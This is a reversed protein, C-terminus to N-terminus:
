GELLARLDMVKKAMAEDVKMLSEIKRVAHLITTHDRGGFRRGIEPLSRLTLTKALYIAIQRPRVVQATRRSSIMDDKSIGFDRAVVKQIDEIKIRRPPQNQILQLVVAETMEPTIASGDVRTHVLLQNLAGELDRGSSTLSAAMYDLAAEPVSFSPTQIQMFRVRMELISRRTEQDPPAIEVCTGGMLRSKLHADIDELHAPQRDGAVVVQRGSDILSNLVLALDSVTNKNKLFQIDDILLTDISRLANKFEPSNSKISALFSYIFHEATVYLTSKKRHAIAQLLHSKGLGVPAHIYLLNPADNGTATLMAAGHALRNSRGVAFSDFTLRPDLSSGILENESPTPMESPLRSQALRKTEIQVPPKVPARAAPSRIVFEVQAVGPYDEQWCALIRAAYHTKLWNKLFHTPVSFVLNTGNMSELNLRGCWSDYVEKGLLSKLRVTFGPFSEKALALENIPFEAVTGGAEAPAHIAIHRPPAAFAVASNTAVSLSLSAEPM